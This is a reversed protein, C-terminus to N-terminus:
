AKLPKEERGVNHMDVMAMAEARIEDRLSEPELVLANAGRSMIWSKLEVTEAVEAEFVISGDDRPQIEQSEHRIKEQIYEALRSGWGDTPAPVSM